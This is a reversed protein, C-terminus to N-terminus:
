WNNRDDSDGCQRRLEETYKRIERSKRKNELSQLYILVAAIAIGLLIGLFIHM